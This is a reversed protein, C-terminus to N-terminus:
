TYHVARTRPRPLAVGRGKSLAWAVAEYRWCARVPGANLLHEGVFSRPWEAGQQLLLELATINYVGAAEFLLESKHEQSFPEETSFIWPLTAEHQGRNGRIANAAVDLANWPCGSLRLWKLLEFNGFYAADDCFGVQWAAGRVRAQSLVEIPQQSLAPLKDFFAFVKSAGPLTLGNALAM